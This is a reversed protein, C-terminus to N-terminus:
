FMSLQNNGKRLPKPTFLHHEHRFAEDPGEWGYIDFDVRGKANLEIGEATLLDRQHQALGTEESVSMEGKSNIVRQWPIGEGSPTTNMAKGVWQAGFRDYTPPLVGEPPPIMSAIQGYTSVIGPPIQKVIEWVLANYSQPDPPNRM